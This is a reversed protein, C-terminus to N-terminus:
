KIIISNKSKYEKDLEIKQKHEFVPYATIFYYTNETEKLIILYDIKDEQYRIKVQTEIVRKSNLCNIKWIKANSNDKNAESIVNGFWEITSM